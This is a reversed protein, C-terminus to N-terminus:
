RPTAETGRPAESMRFLLAADRFRSINTQGYTRQRYRIPIEAVKLNLKAAGLLLDLDGFPDIEGFYARNSAIQEYDSRWLVKTGCLTDKVPAASVPASPM